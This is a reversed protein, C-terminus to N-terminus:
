LERMMINATDSISNNVFFTTDAFGQKRFLLEFTNPCIAGEQFDAYDYLGVSDTTAVPFRDDDIRFVEVDSLVEDSRTDAVIGISSIGCDCSTMLLSTLIVLWLNVKEVNM